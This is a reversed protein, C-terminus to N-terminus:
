EGDLYPDMKFLHKFFADFPFQGFVDVLDGEQFLMWSNEPNEDQYLTFFNIHV